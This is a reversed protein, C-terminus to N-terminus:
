NLTVELTFGDLHVSLKICIQVSNSVQVCNFKHLISSIFIIALHYSAKPTSLVRFYFISPSNTNTNRWLGYNNRNTLQAWIFM